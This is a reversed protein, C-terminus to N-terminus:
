IMKTHYDRVTREGTREVRPDAHEGDAFFVQTQTAGNKQDALVFEQKPTVKQVVILSILASLL